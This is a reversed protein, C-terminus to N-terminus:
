VTAPLLPRGPLHDETGFPSRRTAEQQKGTEMRKMMHATLYFQRYLKIINQYCRNLSKTGGGHWLSKTAYAIDVHTEYIFLEEMTCLSSNLHVNGPCLMFMLWVILGYTWVAVWKEHSPPEGFAM